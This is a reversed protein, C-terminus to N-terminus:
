VISEMVTKQVSLGMKEYFKKATPNCEWVNLTVSYCGIEKAYERVFSYLAAGIHKGRSGDDVCLDDIYLTKMDALINDGKIEKIVCFAYGLVGEDEADFVFVPTSEDALIALIESDTYKRCGGKFIDPRGDHHVLCVQLLLDEIKPIDKELAHRIM